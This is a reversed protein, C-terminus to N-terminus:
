EVLITERAYREYDGNNLIAKIHRVTNELITDVSEQDLDLDNNLLLDVQQPKRIYFMRVNNVIVSKPYNLVILGKERRGTLSDSKPASLSSKLTDTYYEDDIIRLDALLSPNASVPYFNSTQIATYVKSKSNNFLQVNSIPSTSTIILTRRNYETGINEWYLNFNTDFLRTLERNVLIKIAKILMFEQKKTNLNTMYGSPLKSFDFLTISTNSPTTIVIRFNTLVDLELEIPVDVRYTIENKRQLNDDNCSKSVSVESRIYKFYNSPLVMVTRGEKEIPKFDSYNVLSDTVDINSSNDQFGLNNRNKPSVKSNLYKIVEKNLFWDKEQPLINKTSASNIEQLELDLGIHLEQVNM